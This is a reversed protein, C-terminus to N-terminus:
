RKVEGSVGSFTFFLRTGSGQETGITSGLELGEVDATLAVQGESVPAERPYRVTREQVVVLNDIDLTEGPGVDDLPMETRGIWISVRRLTHPSDNHFTGVARVGSGQGRLELELPLAYPWDVAQRFHIERFSLNSVGARTAVVQGVDFLDDSFGTDRAEGYYTAFDSSTSVAEMGSFGLDYRGGSPFFLEQNGVAYAVPSGQHAVLVGRTARSLEVGYLDRAIMFFVGAFALGIFPSTVWALQGRNMKALLLFNLPVVCVFYAALILFVTLTPPMSVTFVSDTGQEFDPYFPGGGYYFDDVYTEVMAGQEGLYSEVDDSRGKLTDAFLAQRGAYTQFPAQFPDFAWFVALGLGCRRYWFIPVGDEMLGTTGPIPEIRTASFTQAMPVGTAETVVSSGRLNVVTPDTGPLFAEWRADRLVPSVAGGLFLVTGGALVHRQIAAVEVDTLRESGEGLIVLDMGDYGIARDPAMGPLVAYDRYGIKQTQSPEYMQSPDFEADGEESEEDMIRLFAILATSDSVLAVDFSDDRGTMFPRLNLKIRTQNCRLEAVPEEYSSSVPVYAIFSRLTRSPMQVPYHMQFSGYSVTLVGEDDDLPNEIDFRVPMYLGFAQSGGWLYSYSLVIEDDKFVPRDRELTGQASM